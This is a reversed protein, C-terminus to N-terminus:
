TATLNIPLDVLNRHLSEQMSGLASLVREIKGAEEEQTMGPQPPTYAPLPGPGIREYRSRLTEIYQQLRASPEPM